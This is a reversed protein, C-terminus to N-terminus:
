NRILVDVIRMMLHLEDIVIHNLDIQILPIHICGFNNTKKNALLAMQDIKRVINGESYFNEPKSMDCRDNKDIACYLCSHKANAANLGCVLLLFKMDGGVFIELSVEDGESTTFPTHGNEGKGLLNNIALLLDRFSEKISVFNETGDVIALTHYGNCSMVEQGCNLIAMSFVIFNSLRSHKAGDASFKVSVVPKFSNEEGIINGNRLNETILKDLVDTLPM